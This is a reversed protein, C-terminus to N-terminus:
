LSLTDHSKEDFLKEQTRIPSGKHVIDNQGNERLLLFFGRDITLGTILDAEAM